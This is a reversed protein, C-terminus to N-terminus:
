RAAGRFCAIMCVGSEIPVPVRVRVESSQEPLKCRLKAKSPLRMAAAADPSVRLQNKLVQFALSSLFSAVSKLMTRLRPTKKAKTYTFFFRSKDTAPATLKTRWRCIAVQTTCVNSHQLLAAQVLGVLMPNSSTLNLWSKSQDILYDPMDGNECSVNHAWLMLNSENTDPAAVLLCAM